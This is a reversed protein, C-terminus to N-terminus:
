DRIGDDNHKNSLIDNVTHFETQVSCEGNNLANIINARTIVSWYRWSHPVNQKFGCMKNTIECKNLFSLLRDCM